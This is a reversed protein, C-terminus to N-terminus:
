KFVGGRCIESLLRIFERNTKPHQVAIRIHKKGYEDKVPVVSIEKENLKDFFSESFTTVSMLTNSYSEICEIGIESLKNLLYRKENLVEKINNEFELIHNELVNIVTLCSLGSFENISTNLLYKKKYKNSCNFYGIRLNALGYAKSFTRIVILNDPLKASKLLSDKLSFEISSEDIVVPISLKKAFEILNNTKIYKGTPNNPNCIYVMRTQSDVADYISDLDIDYNKTFVRKTIGNYSTVAYEAQGFSYFPTVLNGNDNAFFIKILNQLIGNAGSGLIINRDTNEMKKLMKELKAINKRSPYVDLEDIDIKLNKYESLFKGSLTMDIKKSKLKSYDDNYNRKSIIYNKNELPLQLCM